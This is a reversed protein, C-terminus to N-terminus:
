RTVIVTDFLDAASQPDDAFNWGPLFIIKFNKGVIRQNLLELRERHGHPDTDGGDTGDSKECRSDADHVDHEDGHGLAGALDADPARDASAFAVDHLLENHFGDHKAFNAAR